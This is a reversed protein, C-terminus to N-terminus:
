LAMFAKPDRFLEEFRRAMKGAHYGDMVRHDFAVGITVSKRVVVAGGDVRAADKVCGLTLIIPTRAVPLLPAFGIPIGFVGVNTVMCSGFADSPVGFRRLDLGLDYTLYAGARTAAGLLPGPIKAMMRSAKATEADGRERIALARERLEKAIEVVSKTECATIKAGALNADKKKGGGDGGDGKREQDFFSVQFFVDVTDRLLLRGRSVFGNCEPSEALAVAVAKGVLHTLTVREGTERRLTEAYSVAAECDLDMMGYATPDRPSSWTGLAVKRWASLKSLERFAM